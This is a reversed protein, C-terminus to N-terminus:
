PRLLTGAKLKRLLEAEESKSKSYPNIGNKNAIKNIYYDSSSETLDILAGKLTSSGGTYQKFYVQSNIVQSTYVNNGSSVLKLTLDEVEIIEDPVYNDVDFTNDIGLEKHVANRKFSDGHGLINAYYDYFNTAGKKYISGSYGITEEDCIWRVARNKVDLHVYNHNSSINAVGNFLKYEECICAVKRADIISGNKYFCIDLACGSVHPGSGSGGVAIDHAPSRYGSSIGVSNAGILKILKELEVFLDTDYTAGSPISRGANIVKDIFQWLTVHESIKRSQAEEISKYNIFKTAM